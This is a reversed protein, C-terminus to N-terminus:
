SEQRQESTVWWRSEGDGSRRAVHVERAETTYVVSELAGDDCNLITVADESVTEDDGMWAQYAWLLGGIALGLHILLGKM